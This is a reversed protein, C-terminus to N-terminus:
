STSLIPIAQEQRVQLQNVPQSLEKYLTQVKTNFDKNRPLIKGWRMFAIVRSALIDDRDALGLM